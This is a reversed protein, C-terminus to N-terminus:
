FIKVLDLIVVRVVYCINYRNSSDMLLVLEYMELFRMIKFRILKIVIVILVIFFVKGVIFRIENIRGFWKRFVSEGKKVVYGRLYLNNM